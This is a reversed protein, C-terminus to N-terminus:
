RPAAGPTPLVNAISPSACRRRLRPVSTTTPITSVWPRACVAASIPSRSTTGAVLDQLVASRRELLHVDIRQERTPGLDREDVLERVRINGARPVLLAPLVDLLQELGPDRDDRRQVNLMELREVVDDLLDRPDLLALRDGVLDNAARLLDLEDVHGRLRDAAPHRVAVDVRGLPDVDREAVVEPRAVEAREALERQEPEGVADVLREGRVALAVPDVPGPLRALPHHDRQGPGGVAIPENTPRRPHGRAALALEDRHVYPRLVAERCSGGLQEVALPAQDLLEAPGVPLDSTRVGSLGQELERAREVGGLDHEAGGAARAPPLQRVARHDVAHDAVGADADVHVDDAVRLSGFLGANGRPAPPRGRKGGGRDHEAESSPAM